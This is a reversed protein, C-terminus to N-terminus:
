CHSCAKASNKRECKKRYREAKSYLVQNQKKVKKLQKRLKDNQDIMKSPISVESVQLNEPPCEPPSNTFSDSQVSPEPTSNNTPAVANDENLSAELSPPTLNMIANVEKKRKRYKKQADRWMERIKDQISPPLSQM